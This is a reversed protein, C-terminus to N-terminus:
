MKQIAALIEIKIFTTKPNEFTYYKGKIIINYVGYRKNKCKAVWHMIHERFKSSTRTCKLFTPQWKSEIIEATDLINKIWGLNKSIETFLDTKKQPPQLSM